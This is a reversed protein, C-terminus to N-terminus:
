NDLTRVRFGMELDDDSEKSTSKEKMKTLVSGISMKKKLRNSLSQSIELTAKKEKNEDEIIIDIPDDDKPAYVIQCKSMNSVRDKSEPIKKDNSDEQKTKNSTTHIPSKTEPTKQNFLRPSNLLFLSSQVDGTVGKSEHSPHDDTISIDSTDTAVQSGPLIEMEIGKKSIKKEQYFMESHFSSSLYKDEIFTSSDVMKKNKNLVVKTTIKDYIDNIEKNPKYSKDREAILLNLGEIKAIDFVIESIKIGSKSMLAPHLNSQKIKLGEMIDKEMKNKIRTKIENSIECEFKLLDLYKDKYSEILYLADRRLHIPLQLETSIQVVFSIWEQKIKIYDELAEQYQYIKIRGANIAVSFAFLSLLIKITINIYENPILQFQTINLTGALTSVFLAFITNRRLVTRSEDIALELCEINYASISIWSLLTSINNGTWNTGVKFKLMEKKEDIGSVNNM